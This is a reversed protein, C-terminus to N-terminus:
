LNAIDDAIPFSSIHTFIHRATGEFYLVVFDASFRWFFFWFVFVFSYLVLRVYVDNVANHLDDKSWMRGEMSILRNNLQELSEKTEKIDKPLEGMKINVLWNVSWVIAWFFLAGLIVLIIIQLPTAGQAVKVINEPTVVGADIYDM